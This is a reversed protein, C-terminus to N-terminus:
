NGQWSIFFYNSDLRIVAVVAEIAVMSSFDHSGEEESFGDGQDGFSRDGIGGDDWFQMEVSYGEREIIGM